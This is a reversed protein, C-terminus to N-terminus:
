NLLTTLRDFVIQIVAPCVILLISTLITFRLRNKEEVHMLVSAGEWVVYVTYFQLLWGIIRFDPLLGVILQLLFVVVMAYGVFQQTLVIDNAQHFMKVRLANIAYAALFYGGFLAVAVACCNTMAIQFSQPGGWGYTVLSGVFVALGCLGIMPYAFETFVKRRDEELRIEEWAKAPSSILSM